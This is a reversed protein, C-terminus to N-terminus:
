AEGPFSASVINKEEVLPQGCFRLMVQATALVDKECYRAIREADGEEWFVRGVQSGDIDDKPTPVDLVSCLLDLSTFSKYDGFKWMQMTDLLNIEWPKKGHLDRIFPPLPLGLIIFRRGLYPFDFEKGNHACLNRGPNQSYTQLMGAFGNLIDKENDGYWSKLRFGWDGDKFQLFGCSICVVKGFEAYIAARDLFYEDAPMPEEERRTLAKYKKQWSAQMRENLADYSPQQSVTEIDLFLINQLQSNSYMKKSSPAQRLAKLQESKAVPQM